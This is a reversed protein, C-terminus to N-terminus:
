FLEAIDKAAIGKAELSARLRVLNGAIRRYLPKQPLGLVRAIESVRLGDLYRMKVMVRDESPLTALVQKLIGYARGLEGQREEELLPGDTRQSDAFGQLSEEGMRTPRGRFPLEAAWRRLRERSHTLRHNDRLIRIAEEVQFGDRHVLRDLLIGADGWRRARACPRWKGWCHDRFDLYLRQAVVTLFTTWRSEGRFKGLIACGNALMKRHAFSTFEDAEDESLFRRRVTRGIAQEIRPFHQEFLAFPDPSQEPM